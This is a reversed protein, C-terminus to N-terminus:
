CGKPRKNGAGARIACNRHDRVRAREANAHSTAAITVATVTAVTAAATVIPTPTLVFIAAAALAASRLVSPLHSMVTRRETILSPLQAFPSKGGLHM